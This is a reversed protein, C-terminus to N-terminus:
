ILSVPDVDISWTRPALSLLHARTATDATKLILHYTYMGKRKAVLAPVPGLLSVSHNGQVHLALTQGLTQAHRAAVASQKHSFSLLALKCFPPYTYARRQAIEADYFSYFNHKSSAQIIPHEPNYTQLIVTGKKSGRGARGAVQTLLAFTKEGAMFDPLTLSLDAALIGVLTVNPIDWGKTIMQTGILFDIKGTKFLRYNEEHAGSSRTTDRDMRAMAAQPYRKKLEQEVKQTGSGFPRLFSSRCSPCVEPVAARLGCHHCVLKQAPTTHLTLSVDCRTCIIVKGCSRCLLSPAFGRRNLFLVAQENKELVSYLLHELRSSFISYNGARLEERMDVIEVTPLLQATPRNPLVLIASRLTAAYYTELSPTASGLVVPIKRKHSLWDAVTRAHYRPSEQQKYTWEHEEDLVILSLHPLPAFIASRSGIVVWPVPERMAIWTRYRQGASLKSHWVLVRDGFWTTFRQVMQPTLTIEPVLVLAQATPNEQQLKQITALYVETKGSGTIGHLLFTAATGSARSIATVAAEQHVTLRTLRPPCRAPADQTGALRALPPRPRVVKKFLCVTRFCDVLPAQYYRSLWSALAIHIPDLVSEPYLLSLISKTARATTPTLATVWGRCTRRGFPVSVLTGPRTSEQVNPPISYTFTTNDPDGKVDVVVEAFM